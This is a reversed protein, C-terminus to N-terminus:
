EQEGNVEQEARQALYEESVQWYGAKNGGVREVKGEEKLKAIARHITRDSVRLKKAVKPASTYRGKEILDLVKGYVDVKWIRYYRM